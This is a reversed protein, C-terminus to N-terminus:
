GTLYDGIEELLTLARYKSIADLERTTCAVVIAAELVALPGLSEDPHHEVACRGAFLAVCALQAATSEVDRLWEAIGDVVEPCPRAGLREVDRLLQETFTDVAAM